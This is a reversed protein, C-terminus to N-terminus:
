DRRAGSCVKERHIPKFIPRSFSNTTVSDVIFVDEVPNVGRVLLLASGFADGNVFARDRYAGGLDADLQIAELLLQVFELLRRPPMWIADSSLAGEGAVLRICAGPVEPM